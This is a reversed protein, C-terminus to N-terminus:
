THIVLLRDYGALDRKIKIEADPFYQEALISATRGQSQEIEFLLLNDTQNLEALQEILKRILDLGDAGGDLALTPEHQYVELTELTERPIYPLNACIIDFRGPPIDGSLLDSQVFQIREDVGHQRANTASIQLAAASIDVAVFYAHPIHVALSVPIIGSGTGVDLIQFENKPHARTYELATEVLLETEPRPILVDESITFEMGFFHWHGLVYPLPMGSALKELAHELASEQGPSLTFEPHTLLWTRSKGTIHSLLVQADLLSTEGPLRSSISRIMM